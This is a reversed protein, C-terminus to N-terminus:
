KIQWTREVGDWGVDGNVALELYEIRGGDVEIIFTLGFRVGEMEIYKGQAGFTGDPLPQGRLDRLYTFRGAGTNERTLVRIEDVQFHPWNDAAVAQVAALELPSLRDSM